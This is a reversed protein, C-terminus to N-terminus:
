KFPDYDKDIKFNDINLINGSEMSASVPFKDYYDIYKVYRRMYQVPVTITYRYIRYGGEINNTNVFSSPIQFIRFNYLDQYEQARISHLATVVEFRRLRAENNRSTIDIQINDNIVTEQIESFDGNVDKTYNNNSVIVSGISQIGVQLKDTAGLSVDPSYVYVSPMIFGNKDTGYNEPLDLEYLLLKQIVKEIEINDKSM